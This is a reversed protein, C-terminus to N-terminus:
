TRTGRPMASELNVRFSWFMRLAQRTVGQAEFHEPQLFAPDLHPDDSPDRVSEHAVQVAHELPGTPIALVALLLKHVQRVTALDAATINPNDTTNDPDHLKMKM